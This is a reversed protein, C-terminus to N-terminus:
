PITTFENITSGLDNIFEKFKQLGYMNIFVQPFSSFLSLLSEIIFLVL